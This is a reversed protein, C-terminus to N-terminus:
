AIPKHFLVGISNSLFSVPLNIPLALLPITDQHNFYFRKFMLGNEALLRLLDKKFLVTIHAPYCSDQFFRHEGKFLFNLKSFFNHNNPTSIYGYGGPKIIRTMERMFHRPNEVHEIVELSFAMDVANDDIPWSLNCDTKVFSIKEHAWDPAYDDAMLIKEAYPILMKALVGRGAGIDAFTKCQDSLVSSLAHIAKQKVSLPSSGETQKGLLLNM